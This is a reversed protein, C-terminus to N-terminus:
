DAAAAGEFSGERALSRAIHRISVKIQGQAPGLKAPFAPFCVPRPLQPGSCGAADPGPDTWSRAGSETPSSSSSILPVSVQLPPASSAAAAGAPSPSASSPPPPRFNALVARAFLFRLALAGLFPDDLVRAWAPALELDQRLLGRWHALLADVQAQVEALLSCM